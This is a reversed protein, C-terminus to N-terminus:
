QEFHGKCPDFACYEGVPEELEYTLLCNETREEGGITVVGLTTGDSRLAYPVFGTEKAALFYADFDGLFSAMEEENMQKVSKVIGSQSKILTDVQVKITGEPAAYLLYLLNEGAERGYEYAIVFGPPIFVTFDAGLMFDYVPEWMPNM